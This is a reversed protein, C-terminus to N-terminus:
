PRAFATNWEHNLYVMCAFPAVATATQDHVQEHSTKADQRLLLM